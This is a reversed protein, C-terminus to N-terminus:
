LVKQNEQKRHKLNMAFNLPFCLPNGYVEEGGGRVDQMRTTYKNWDIFWCQCTVGLWLGCNINPYTNPTRVFTCHGTRVM